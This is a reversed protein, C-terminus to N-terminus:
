LASGNPPGLQRFDVARLTPLDCDCTGSPAGRQAAEPDPARSRTRVAWTEHEEPLVAPVEGPQLLGRRRERARRAARARAVLGEGLSLGGM